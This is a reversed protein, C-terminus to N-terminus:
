GANPTPAPNSPKIEVKAGPVLRVQGDTVVREGPALGKEIVTEREITRHVVIPRSEVTLDPKVVFVYPGQQGTQIAQSPVVVANPETTLTLVVNVFQGPWLANDANTFTAKLEVTGTTRDVANDVFTLDGLPQRGERGLTIAEVKLNGSAMYRRIAPLEQEPVSFSVYIPRVQNIVVLPHDADNAKILNGQHVLLNGTRGDIPSRISAYGLQLKANEVASRDWQLTAELATANTRAQDHQQQSVGGEKFLDAFRREDLRANAAQATDRALTAEAQRLAAEFSRPDILFILDGKKVDQGEKFYVRALTGEVQSKISVTSYAQVNGIARLQLPVAKQVVEGVSVPVASTVAAKGSAKDSCACLAAMGSLLVMLIGV